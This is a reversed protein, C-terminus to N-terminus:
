REDDRRSPRNEAGPQDSFVNQQQEAILIQLAPIALRRVTSLAKTAELFQRSARVIKRQHADAVAPAMRHAEFQYQLEYVHLHMWSLVTREVLLKELTTPQAGAMERRMKAVQALLAERGLPDDPTVRAALIREIREPLNDGFMAALTGSSDDIFAQRMWALSAGDGLKAREITQSFEENSVELYAPVPAQGTSVALERNTESAQSVGRRRRWQGRDHRHHGSALMAADVLSQCKLSYDDFGLEAIEDRFYHLDAREAARLRAQSDRAETLCEAYSAALEGRGIYESVVRGNERRIRYFYAHGARTKWGM